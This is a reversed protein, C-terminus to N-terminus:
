NKKEVAIWTKIVGIMFVRIERKKKIYPGIDCAFSLRLLHMHRKRSLKDNIILADCLFNAIPLLPIETNVFSQSRLSDAKRLQLHCLFM